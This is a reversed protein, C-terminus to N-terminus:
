QLDENLNELVRQLSLADTDYRPLCYHCGNYGHDRILDAVEQLDDCYSKNGEAMRSVWHCDLRHIEKSNLNAIYWWPTFRYFYQITVTSKDARLDTVRFVIHSGTEGQQALSVYTHGTVANVGFRTYGSTPITVAALDASGINGLDKIGRQNLNNAWFEGIQEIISNNLNKIRKDSILDSVYSNNVENVKLETLCEIIDQSVYNLRTTQHESIYYNTLLILTALLIGAGIIADVSFFMAKKLAM